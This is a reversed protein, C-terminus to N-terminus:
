RVGIYGSSRTTTPVQSRLYERETGWQTPQREIQCWQMVDKWVRRSVRCDFFLHDLTENEVGCLSCTADVAIGIHQLYQCTALKGHLLLWVIFVCKAPAVTQCLIKAWPWTQVEGRLETYLKQIKLSPKQMWERGRQLSQLHERAGIIKREVWSCNKPM